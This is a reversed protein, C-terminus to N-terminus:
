KRAVVSRVDNISTTWLMAAAPLHVLIILMSFDYGFEIGLFTTKDSIDPINRLSCLPDSFVLNTSLTFHMREIKSVAGRRFGSQYGSFFFLGAILYAFLFRPLLRKLALM